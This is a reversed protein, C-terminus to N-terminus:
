QLKAEEKKAAKWISCWGNLTSTIKTGRPFQLNEQPDGWQLIEITEERAGWSNMERQNAIYLDITNFSTCGHVM